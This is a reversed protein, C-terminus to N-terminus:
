VFLVHVQEQTRYNVCLEFKEFRVRLAHSGRINEFLMKSYRMFPFMYTPEPCEDGLTNASTWTQRDITRAACTWGPPWSTSSQWRDGPFVPLDIFITLKKVGM